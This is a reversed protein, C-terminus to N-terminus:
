LIACIKSYATNYHLNLGQVIIKSETSHIIDGSTFTAVCKIRTNNLSMSTQNFTLYGESNISDFNIRANLTINNLNYITNNLYWSIESLEGFSSYCIYYLTTGPRIVLQGNPSLVLSERSLVVVLFLFLVVFLNM